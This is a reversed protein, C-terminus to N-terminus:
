GEGERREGLEAEGENNELDKELEAKTQLTPIEEIYKLETLIVLSMAHWKTSDSKGVVAPYLTLLFFFNIMMM